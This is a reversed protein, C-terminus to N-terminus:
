SGDLMNVLASGNLTRYFTDDSMTAAQSPKAPGAFIYNDNLSVNYNNYTYSLFDMLNISHLGVPTEPRETLIPAGPSDADLHDFTFLNKTMSYNFPLRKKPIETIDGNDIDKLIELMRSSFDSEEILRRFRQLSYDPSTNTLNDLEPVDGLGDALIIGARDHSPFM